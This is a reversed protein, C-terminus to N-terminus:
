SAHPFSPTIALLSIHFSFSSRLHSWTRNQVSLILLSIKDM